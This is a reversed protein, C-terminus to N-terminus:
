NLISITDYIIKINTDNFKWRNGVNKDAWGKASGESLEDAMAQWDCVMEIIDIENMDNVDDFFEPHYRNHTIHHLSADKTQEEVGDPYSFDIGNNKCRYFETIWIYGYKEYPGFKSLDHNKARLLLMDPNDLVGGINEYVIKLHGAVTDIHEQTRKYFNELMEETYDRM